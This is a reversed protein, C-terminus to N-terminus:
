TRLKRNVLLHHAQSRGVSVRRDRGQVSCVTGRCCAGAGARGAVQMTGLKVRTGPKENM